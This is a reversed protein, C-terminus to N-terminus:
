QTVSFNDFRADSTPYDTYPDSAVGTRTAGTINSDTWTGLINGNVELTIQIGNRTIKLHNSAIGGNIYPSVTWPFISHWEAGDYRWLSFDQYDSSVEFTYYQEFDGIIGFMIGYMNGPPGVWRADVEVTYNERACTPADAYYFYQDDKSLIRYEGDLYEWQADEDEWVYWGSAPNSFDDFFNPCYNRFSVPLYVTLQDLAKANGGAILLSAVIILISSLLLTRKKMAYM